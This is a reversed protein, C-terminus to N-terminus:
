LRKAVLNPSEGGEIAFDLDGSAWKELMDTYYHNEEHTM